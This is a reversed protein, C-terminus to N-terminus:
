WYIGNSYDRICLDKYKLLHVTSHTNMSFDYVNTVEKSWLVDEGQGWILNENLKYEVMVKKKAVWYSGSIYMYKSIGSVVYPIIGQASNGLPSPEWVCWDRFRTGDLNKIVNMSIDFENGFKLYGDYWDIDYVVYDHSYVINEYKALCTIINKKKTIWMYRVNEDFPINVDGVVLTNGVIIIEYKPINLARISNVQKQLFEDNFGATIIGFTFNM